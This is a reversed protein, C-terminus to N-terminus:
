KSDTDQVVDEADHRDGTMRLAMKYRKRRYKENYRIIEQHAM